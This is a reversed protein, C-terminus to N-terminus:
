STVNIVLNSTYTDSNASVSINADHEEPYVGAPVNIGLSFNTCSSPTLSTISPLSFWTSANNTTLGNGDKAWSLSVTSSSLNCVSFDKSYNTNSVASFTTDKPYISVVLPAIFSEVSVIVKKEKNVDVLGTNLEGIVNLTGPYNGSASNLLVLNFDIVKTENPTLVFFTDEELLVLEAYPSHNFSSTVWINLNTDFSNRVMLTKSVTSGQKASVYISDSSLDFDNYYLNVVNGDFFLFVYYKGTSYDGGVKKWSGNFNVDATATVDTGNALRLSLTNNYINSDSVVISSPVEILIKEKSGVGSYYLSNATNVMLQISNKAISADKTQNSTEVQWSYISYIITLALMSIGLLLLLEITTQGKTHM